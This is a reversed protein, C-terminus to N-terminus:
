FGIRSALAGCVIDYPEVLRAVVATDSLDAQVTQVGPARAAAADLAAQNIDAITVDLDDALDAAIVSGVMGAGLVLATPM